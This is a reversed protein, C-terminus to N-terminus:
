WLRTASLQLLGQLSRAAAKVEELDVGYDDAVEVRTRNFGARRGVLSALAAGTAAPTFQELAPEYAVRSWAALCRIVLPLGVESLDVNWVAMGVPDLPSRPKPAWEHLQPGATPLWGSSAFRGDVADAYPLVEEVAPKGAVLHWRLGFSYVSGGAKLGGGTFHLRGQEPEETAFHSETPLVGPLMGVARLPGGEGYLQYLLRLPSHAEARKRPWSDHSIVAQWFDVALKNGIGSIRQCWREHERFQEAQDHVRPLVGGSGAPTPSVAVRRGAATPPPASQRSSRFPPLAASQNSGPPAQHDSATEAEWPLEPQAAAKTEAPLENEAPAVPPQVSTPPEVAAVARPGPSGPLCSECVLRDRAAVLPACAGCNPCPLPAFEAAPLWWRLACPFEREGRRVVVPLHMTPVWLLHLRVPRVEYAPQFVERIEELRRAREGRTIEAQAGLLRQREPLAGRAREAISDLAAEYYAAALKLEDERASASDSALIALRASARATLRAHARGLALELDPDVALRQPRGEVHALTILHQELRPPLALGTCGDVWVEEREYFRDRVFYTVQVGVRLVPAYRPLAEGGPDIRGHEIGIQDRAKALLDATAPPPKVPWALWVAGADGEDLVRGAAADLLPHGPILLVAGDERALDPDTTVVMTEGLGFREQLSQPLVMLSRDGAEETLAGEREAYHLWFRLGPERNRDSASGETM